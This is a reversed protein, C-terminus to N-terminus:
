LTSLLGSLKELNNKSIATVIPPLYGLIIYRNINAKKEEVLYKVVNLANIRVASHVDICPNKHEDELHRKSTIYKIIKDVEEQNSAYKKDILDYKFLFDTIKYLKEKVKNIIKQQYAKKEETDTTYNLFSNSYYNYSLNYKECKYMIYYTGYSEYFGLLISIINGSLKTINHEQLFKKFEELDHDIMCQYRKKSYLTRKIFDRKLNEYKDFNSEKLSVLTM